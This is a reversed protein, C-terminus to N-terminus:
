AAAGRTAAPSGRSHAFRSQRADLHSSRAAGQGGHLPRRRGHPRGTSDQHARGSVARGRPEAGGSRLRHREGGEGTGCRHDRAGAAHGHTRPWRAGSHPDLARARDFRRLAEPLRGLGWLCLAENQWALARRLTEHIAGFLQSASQSATVCQPYRGEYLYTLAINTLQSGADYREGRQLHFRSLRQLLRRARALLGTSHVGYGPVPREAPATSGIEIWAAAVLAEARSRRYPEDTGLTEAATKAWEAAKAWDQLDFYEVGALALATEGRLPRDAPATLASVAAAYGEAARLFAARADSRAPSASHGSSIEEGAAYDSDAAALAKVIAICDPRTGLAALDFVRVTATGAAGAHEKGTVRVVLSPPDAATVMARRTGTRREPHDARAIAQRKSDLVEVLADNDREDVEILYTHGPVVALDAAAPEMGVTRLPGEALAPPGLAATCSVSAAARPTAWGALVV